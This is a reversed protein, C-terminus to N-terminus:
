RRRRRRWCGRRRGRTAAAAAAAAPAAAAAAAPAPAPAAPPCSARAGGRATRREGYVGKGAGAWNTAAPQGHVSGSAHTRRPPLFSAMEGSLSLPSEYAKRSSRQEASPSSCSAYSGKWRSSGASCDPLCRRTMCRGPKTSDLAGMGGGRLGRVLRAAGSRSTSVSERGRPAACDDRKHPRRQQTALEVFLERELVRLERAREREGLDARDLALQEAECLLLGSAAGGGRPGGEGGGGGGAEMLAGAEGEAEAEVAVDVEVAVVLVALERRDRERVDVKLLEHQAVHDVLHVALQHGRDAGGGAGGGAGGRCRGQIKGCM